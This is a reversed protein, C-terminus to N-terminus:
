AARRLRRLAAIVRSSPAAADFRFRVRRRDNTEDIQNQVLRDLVPRAVNMELRELVLEFNTVAHVARKVFHRRRRPMERERHNRADLDHRVHIDGFAAQRLVTANLLLDRAAADIQANRGQRRLEAFADHQAHEIAADDIQIEFREAHGIYM